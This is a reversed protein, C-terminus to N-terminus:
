EVDAPQPQSKDVRPAPRQSCITWLPACIEPKRRPCRFSVRTDCGDVAGNADNADATDLELMLLTHLALGRM